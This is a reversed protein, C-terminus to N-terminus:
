PTSTTITYNGIELPDYSTVRLIRHEGALHTFTFSEPTGPFQDDVELLTAGTVGDVLVLFLDITPSAVSVTVSQNAALNPFYYDDRFYSQTFNPDIPDTGALSGARTQPVALTAGAARTITYAGTEFPNSSTARVLMPVNSGVVFNIYADTGGGTASDDDALVLVGTEANVIELYANFIGSTMRLAVFSGISVNTLLFDDKYFISPVFLPDVPDTTALSGGVSSNGSITPLGDYSAFLALLFDGTGAASDSTVRALYSQGAQPTFTLRDDTGGGSNGTDDVVLAGTNEDIISLGADFQSSRLSLGVAAGPTLGTLRYRKEYRGPPAPRELNSLGGSVFGPLALERIAPIYDNGPKVRLRLFGAPNGAVPTPGRLTVTELQPLGAVPEAAGVQLVATDQPLWSALGTGFDMGYDIESPAVLRRFTLSPYTVGSVSVTGTVPFPLSSGSGPNTWASFELLGEARDGDLDPAEANAGFAAEWASRNPGIISRIWPAYSAIRTHAGFNNPAGCPVARGFSVIGAFLFKGSGDPVLLPGGSDGTCSDKGGAAVGAFVMNDTLITGDLDYFPQATAREVIPLDVKQLITPYFDEAVTSAGWGLVTSTVGAAFTAPDTALRAFTGIVTVPEALLLLALDGDSTSPDYGPFTVIDVVQVRQGAGPNSLDRTGVLLDITSPTENEVCHAATVAWRPHIVTAACFQALYANPEDRRLLAAMYPFENM